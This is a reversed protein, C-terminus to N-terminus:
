LRSTILSWYESHPHLIPGNHSLGPITIVECESNCHEGLQQAMSTPFLEDSEGHLVLVPMEAHKLTELTNWISPVLHTLPKPLGISAADRFSTFSACLILKAPRLESAVATAIGSGLSYGLLSLPTTPLLQRLHQFAARTDAECQQPTVWGTSKGYGSYNFVLSAIGKHALLRQAGDWYEVTEGIGHCILLGARIPIKVPTVFRANLVNKGSPIRHTTVHIRSDAEYHQLRGLLRDRLILVRSIATVALTFAANQLHVSATM